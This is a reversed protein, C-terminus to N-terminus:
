DGAAAGLEPCLGEEIYRFGSAHTRVTSGDVVMDKQFIRPGSINMKGVTGREAQSGIFASQELVRPSYAATPDPCRTKITAVVRVRLRESEDADERAKDGAAAMDNAILYLM